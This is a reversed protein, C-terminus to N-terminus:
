ELLAAMGRPFVAAASARGVRVTTQDHFAGRGGGSRTQTIGYVPLRNHLSRTFPRIEQPYHVFFDGGGM